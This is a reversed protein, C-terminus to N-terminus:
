RGGEIYKIYTKLIMEGIEEANRKEKNDIILRVLDRAFKIGNYYQNENKFKLLRFEITPQSTHINVWCYRDDPDLKDDAYSNFYRGWFNKTEFENEILRKMLPYFLEEFNHEIFRKENPSLTGVHLHTGCERGVYESFKNLVKLHLKIGYMGQYIPSKWEYGGISGDYTPVYGLRRLEHLEPTNDSTEFEISFTFKSKSSGIWKDNEYGYDLSGQCNSCIKGFKPVEIYDEGEFIKNGCVKCKYVKDNFGRIILM